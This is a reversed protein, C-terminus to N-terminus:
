SLTSLSVAFMTKGMRLLIWAFFSLTYYYMSLRFLLYADKDREVPETRRFAAM